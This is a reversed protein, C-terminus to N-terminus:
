RPFTVLSGRTPPQADGWRTRKIRRRHVAVRARGTNLLRRGHREGIFGVGIVLVDHLDTQNM